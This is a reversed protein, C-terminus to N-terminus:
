THIQQLHLHTTDKTYRFTANISALLIEFFLRTASLIAIRMLSPGYNTYVFISCSSVYVIVLKM